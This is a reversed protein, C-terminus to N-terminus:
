DMWTPPTMDDVLLLGGPRLAAITRDLGTWKGGQADAFILDCPGIEDLVALVDAVRLSVFEPWAASQAIASAQADIDVSTLRVDRRSGLGHVLWASGAGVGTGMELISGREPVAAALTALLRGVDPECSLAFGNQRAREYAAAVIAPLGTTDM